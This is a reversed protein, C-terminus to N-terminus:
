TFATVILTVVAVDFIRRFYFTMAPDVRSPNV